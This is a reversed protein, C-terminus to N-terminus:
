AEKAPAAPSCASAGASASASTSAPVAAACAAGACAAGASAGASLAASARGARTRMRAAAVIGRPGVILSVLAICSMVLIICPGTALGDFATAALVGLLSSVGGTIGAIALMKGYSNTWQLATVAPVILMASILIAGVVKLGVAILLLTCALVLVNMIVRSYGNTHALVPDFVHLKLEKYFLTLVGLSLVSVVLIIIVDRELIYSAQGFIYSQLGAQSAHSFLPNGTTWSKLVMGLGFLSSLVVAMATDLTLRTRDRALQVFSFGVLGAVAAGAVLLVPERTQFLIFAMVVGPFSAHGMADGILSQGKLVSLSGVMGASVALITAGAAVVLFVPSTLLLILYSSM